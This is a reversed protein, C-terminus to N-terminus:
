PAKIDGCAVYTGLDSTSKHVNIAFTGALLQDLTVGKVVTTSTGSALSTLPYQPAPNLKACTGQHIHAPQAAAPANKLSVAVQVGDPTQTLVATGDEGSGNQAHLSITLPSTAAAVPAALAVLAGLALATALAIPKM